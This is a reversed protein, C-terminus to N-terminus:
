VLNDMHYIGQTYASQGEVKYATLQQQRHIDGQAAISIHTWSGFEHILQDYPMNNSVVWECVEFPTYGSVVIDAALGNCHQSATSGGIAINLEPSRFGSTIHVPGLDDRIFQLLQRCLATLNTHIISDPEVRNDIGRRTATQSRTFEDLYFNPSLQQRGM